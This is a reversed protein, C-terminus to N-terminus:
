LITDELSRKNQVVIIDSYVTTTGNTLRFKLQVNLNGPQWFLTDHQSLTLTITKAETDIVPHEFIKQNKGCDTEITVHCVSVDNLDFDEEDITFILTPTSGRFFSVKEGM